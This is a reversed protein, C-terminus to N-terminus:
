EKVKLKHYVSLIQRIGEITRSSIKEDKYKDGQLRVSVAGENGAIHDLMDFLEDNVPESIRERVNGDSKVDRKSENKFKYNYTESGILVTMKDMFIWGPGNYNVRLNLFLRDQDDIILYPALSSYTNSKIEIFTKKQFKDYDRNLGKLDEKSLIDLPKSRSDIFIMASLKSKYDVYSQKVSSDGMEGISKDLNKIIINRAADSDVDLKKIETLYVKYFADSEQQAFSIFTMCILFTILVLKKM